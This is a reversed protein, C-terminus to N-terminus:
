PLNPLIVIGGATADNPITISAVIANTTTDIITVKGASHVLVQAGSQTVAIQDVGFFSSGPGVLIRAGSDSVNHSADINLVGMQQTGVDYVYAHRGDPAFAISQPALFGGLTAAFSVTGDAAIRLSGISGPAQNAM